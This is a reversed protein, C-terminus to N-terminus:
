GYELRLAMSPSVQDGGLGEASTDHLSGELYLQKLSPLVVMPEYDRDPSLSGPAGVSLTLWHLTEIGPCQKLANFTPNSPAANGCQEAM